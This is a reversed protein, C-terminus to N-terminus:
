KTPEDEIWEVTYSQGMQAGVKIVYRKLLEKANKRAANLINTDKKANKHMIKQAQSYAKAQDETTIATLVGTDDIIDSMSEEDVDVSLIIANPVYIRIVGQEDPKNIVVDNVNIGVKVIGNYEMWFKKYGYQFLGYKFLGNPQIEDELVNHYYCKLTALECIKDVASFEPLVNKEEKSLNPVLLIIFAIIILFVGIITNRFLVNNNDNITKETDM